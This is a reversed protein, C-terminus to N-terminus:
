GSTIQEGASLIRRNLAAIDVTGGQEVVDLVEQATADRPALEVARRLLTRARARDGQVSAIAGLELTAYEGRANRDLAQAFAAKARALDGYRLAISGKVLAPRDSFPDLDAARDLRSYSAFPRTAYVAGAREVDREALWPGAVVLAGLVVAAGALVLVAARPRAPSAIVEAEAEEAVAVRPALACALGLLAFAPAGLGAWEWFWDTMGHVAWYLFALVAGGAVAGALPDRAARMGQWGAALAALFATLLLLTGVIGTQALTRLALNHPNRPTENSTGRELYDQFFNDAGVGGIPHASFVDLAVRYFDYRNSGLGATLRSGSGTNDDYGGKFSHWANDIRDVPDGVAVLGGAAGLVAGAVVVVTWGRRIRAATAEAPPRLTEYAAVAAVVLAALVAVVLVTRTIASAADQIAAASGGDLADGMDIVKPLALAAAGLVPVLTAVNRLRGPVIAVFLVACVPLSLVSGRSQSLLAVDVLVVALGASLGRVAWRVRVTAALAVAPWIAMGWTAAEANAYGVPETLRDGDFLTAPDAVAGIRILTVLAIAGLGFTWLGLVWAATAPRQPWLAFLLFVTLYLLTRDAGELAVGRDDAWAISAFSWATFAALAGAAVRITVPLARWRLPLAAVALGLLGLLGIAGPAWRTIPQGGDLPTWVLFVAVAILTPATIPAARLRQLVM